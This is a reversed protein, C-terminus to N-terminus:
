TRRGVAITRARGQLVAVKDVPVPWPVESLAPAPGAATDFVEEDEDEEDEVVLSDERCLLRDPPSGRPVDRDGEGGALPRLAM